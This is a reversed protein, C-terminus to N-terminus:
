HRADLIVADRQCGDAPKMELDARRRRTWVVRHMLGTSDWHGANSDFGFRILQLLM